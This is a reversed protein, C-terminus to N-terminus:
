GNLISESVPLPSKGNFLPTQVFVIVAVVCLTVVLASALFIFATIVGPWIKGPDVSQQEQLM